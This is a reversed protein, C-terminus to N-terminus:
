RALSKTAFKAYLDVQTGCGSTAGASSSTGAAAATSTTSQAAALSAVALVLATTYQMKEAPQYIATTSFRELTHFVRTLHQLYTSLSRTHSDFSALRSCCRPSFPSVPYSNPSIYSFGQRGDAGQGQDSLPLTFLETRPFIAHCVPGIAYIQRRATSLRSLSQHWVLRLAKYKAVAQTSESLERRRIHLDHKRSQTEGLSPSSLITTCCRNRPTCALLGCTSTTRM